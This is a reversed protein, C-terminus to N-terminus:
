GAAVFWIGRGLGLDARQERQKKCRIKLLFNMELATVSGSASLRVAIVM